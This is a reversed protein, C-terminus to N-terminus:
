ETGEEMEEELMEGGEEVNEEITEGGEELMEGGEEVEEELNQGGEEIVDETEGACASLALVLALGLSLVLRKLRQMSLKRGKTDTDGHDHEPATYCAYVDLPRVLNKQRAPPEVEPFLLVQHFLGPAAATLLLHQFIPQPQYPGDASEPKKQQWCSRM